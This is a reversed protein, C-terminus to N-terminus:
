GGLSNGAWPRNSATSFAFERHLGPPESVADPTCYNYPAVGLRPEHPEGLREARRHEDNERHALSALWFRLDQFSSLCYGPALSPVFAAGPVGGGMRM